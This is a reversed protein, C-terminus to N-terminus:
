YYYNIIGFYSLEPFFVEGQHWLEHDNWFNLM